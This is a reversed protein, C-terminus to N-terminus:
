KRKVVVQVEYDIDSTSFVLEEAAIKIATDKAEQESGAKVTLTKSGTAVRNVIVDYIAEEVPQIDTYAWHTEINEFKGSERHLITAPLNENSWKYAERRALLVTDAEVIIETSETTIRNITVSYKM